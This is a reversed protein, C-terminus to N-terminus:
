IAQPIVGAGYNQVCEEWMMCLICIRHSVFRIESMCFPVLVFAQTNVPLRPLVRSTCLFPSVFSFFVNGVYRKSVRYVVREFLIVYFTYKIYMSQRYRQASRPLVIEMSFICM